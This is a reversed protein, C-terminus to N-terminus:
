YPPSPSPALMPNRPIQYEWWLEWHNNIKNGFNGVLFCVSIAIGLKSFPYTYPFLIYLKNAKESNSKLYHTSKSKQQV